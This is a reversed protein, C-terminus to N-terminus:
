RPQSGATSARTLDAQAKELIALAGGMYEVYKKAAEVPPLVDLNVPNGDYWGMYRQYVARANHKLTGYYWRAPWFGKPSKPLVIMEAIEEGTYGQNMLNVSRDHIFKYVDRQKKLYGIVNDNDWKPWHHSQFKVDIRDGYRDITEGIYKSWELADRVQAGRLTLINHMTATTNEAMWMARWKPFYTNMESPAETGPTLQFEM